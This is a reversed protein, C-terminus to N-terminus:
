RNSLVNQGSLKIGFFTIRLGKIEFTSIDRGPFKVKKYDQVSLLPMSRQTRSRREIVLVNAM